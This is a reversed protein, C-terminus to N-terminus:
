IECYKKFNDLIMQWGIQQMELPNESEPEFMEIVETTNGIAIFEVKMKRRDGM